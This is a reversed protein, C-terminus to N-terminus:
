LWACDADFRLNSRAQPQPRAGGPDPPCLRGGVARYRGQRDAAAQRREHGHGGIVPLARYQHHQGACVQRVWPTGCFYRGRAPAEPRRSPRVALDRWRAQPIAGLGAGLPIGHPELAADGTCRRPPRTVPQGDLQPIPGSRQEFTGELPDGIVMTSKANGWGEIRQSLTSVRRRLRPGDEVPAWTAFSARLRIAIHNHEEREQKLFAFARRLDSNGPFMSLFSAGVEKIQMASQGCGEIVISARWPIRDIGLTAALEVFPRPDEPGIDMDVPSYANDGFDVRQGGCTVADTYFLQDRIPPWLLYGANPKADDEPCRAMVKDGPLSPSWDSGSMERYMAERAVRLADHPELVSIAVDHARLASQVRSVFATHRAAMVESRMYFRQTGVVGGGHKANAAYEAKLQKREEKTLVSIRTWVQFYAAEWRMLKLWLIARENLIDHLNLGVERAISRCSALNVREIEVLAADPDSIYWGVIAHGKNELAGSLDLRMAETIADYDKREAMRQMGNVHLWTCYHGGRTILADDHTTELDCYATLPQKLMLSLSALMSAIGSFM